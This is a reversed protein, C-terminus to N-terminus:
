QQSSDIAHTHVVNLAFTDLVRLDRGCFGAMTRLEESSADPPLTDRPVFTLINPHYGGIIFDGTDPLTYVLMDGSPTGPISHGYQQLLAEALAAPDGDDAIVVCTGYSFLVFSRMEGNGLLEAWQKSRQDVDIEPPDPFTPPPTTADKIRLHHRLKSMGVDTAVCALVAIAVFVWTYPWELILPPLIIAGGVIFAPIEAKWNRQLVSSIPHPTIEDLTMVNSPLLEQM